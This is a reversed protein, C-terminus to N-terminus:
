PTFTVGATFRLVSVTSPEDFTDGSVRYASEGDFPNGVTSRDLEVKFAAQESLAFRVGVATTAGYRVQTEEIAGLDGGTAEDLAWIGLNAGLSAYPAVPADKPTFYRVVALQVMVFNLDALGEEDLDSVEIGSDDRAQISTGTWDASVRVETMPWSSFSVAGGLTFASEAVIEREGGTVRQELFASFVSAGGHGALTVKLPERQARASAPALALVAVVGVAIWCWSLSRNM